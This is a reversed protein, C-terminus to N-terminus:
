LKFQLKAYKQYIGSRNLLEKHSGRDVISGKDLVFIEDASTVTALRHAIIIATKDKLFKEMARQILNESEADLSSTAEDLLIIQSNKLIARALAIRQKQGGSLRVGKEGVFTQYKNPLLEIFETAQALECAKSVEAFTADLKSFRVNEWITDSFVFPDQSVLSILNRYNHLDLNKINKDDIYLNGVSPDYFRLLLKFLTSKGTGSPGVLAIKQGKKIEFSIDKLIYKNPNSPYSFNVNDYKIGQKIKTLFTVPTQTIILPHTNFLQQLRETAGAARYISSSLEALESLSYGALTCFYAFSVFQSGTINLYTLNYNALSLLCTIVFFVGITTLAKSLGFFRIRNIILDSEERSKRAFERFSVEEHSYAKITQIANVTEEVHASILAAKTQIERSVLRIKRGFFISSIAVLPSLLVILFCLSPSIYLMMIFSSFFLVVHNIFNSFTGVFIIEIVLTDATIRSIIDGTKHTEFFSTDMTMTHKYASDRLDRVLKEGLKGAFFYRGFISLSSIVVAILIPISVSKIFALGAQTQTSDFLNRVIRGGYMISATSIALFFLFVLIDKKHPKLYKALFALNKLNYNPAEKFSIM